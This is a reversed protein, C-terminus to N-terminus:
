VCTKKDRHLKQYLRSAANPRRAPEFAQTIAALRTYGEWMVQHGPVAYRQRKFNLYGGLMALTLLAQGLNDPRALQQPGLTGASRENKGIYGLGVCGPHEAFKMDTGDQICLVAEPGQMRGLTREGHRALINEPTVASDAPLDILRYYGRGAELDKQAAGRFSKTPAEAQIRVSLVLRRSLRVDGLPAAGFEHQAWM